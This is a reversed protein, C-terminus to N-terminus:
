RRYNKQQLRLKNWVQMLNSPIKLNENTLINDVETQYKYTGFNLMEIEHFRNKAFYNKFINNFEKWKKVITDKSSSEDSRWIDEKDYTTDAGVIRMCDPNIESWFINGTKDLMYYADKVILKVETFYSQITAFLKLANLRTQEVDIVQHLLEESLNKDEVPKAYKPNALVKEFFQEKGVQEEIVYYYLNKNLPNGDKNVHNPNRWDFRVMPGCIYEGTPLVIDKNDKLYFLTDKDTGECYRKVVTKIPPCDIWDSMIIGYKNISYYVHDMGNRWLMENFIQSGIARISGLGEIYETAQKSRSYITSKLCIWVKGKTYPNPSCDYYVKKSEGEELLKLTIRNEEQIKMDNVYSRALLKHKDINPFEHIYEPLDDLEVDEVIGYVINDGDREQIDEYTLYKTGMSRFDDYYHKHKAIYKVVKVVQEITLDTTDIIPIGFHGSLERFRCKFYHLSKRTKRIDFKDLNDRNSIRKLIVDVDCDLIIWVVNNSIEIEDYGDDFTNMLTMKDLVHIDAPGTDRDYANELLQCVSTKGTGYNGVIYITQM